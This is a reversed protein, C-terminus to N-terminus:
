KRLAKFTGNPQVSYFAVIKGQEDAEFRFVYGPLSIPKFDHKGAFQAVFDGQGPVSFVLQGERVYVRVNMTSLAYNGVYRELEETSASPAKYKFDVPEPVSPDLLIRAVEIRGTADSIFNFRLGGSTNDVGTKADISKAEFVDYHYHKLYFSDQPVYAFLSDGRLKIVINGYAPNSAEGVYDKLAHSPRTGAVKGMDKDEVSESQEGGGRQPRSWAYYPQGFLRDAILNRVAGPVGSSNQNSLVIIALDDTPFLCVNTSFGDINGGHEVRYHGHYSSLMWGLGYASFHLDPHVVGPRGTGMVMQASVADNIYNAPIVEKGEFKGENLWTMVWASLENASSNISGAPGMANIPHYEMRHIISDDKLAYGLAVDSDKQLAAISTNSRIMRLPAFFQEAILKEWTKGTLQEAVMGQALYMFNNYQWTQRLGATAKMHRVRRLLSDRSNTPFLYWSYDYRPLGTRHSMMDRLTVKASLDEDSFELKPLYQRVPGDLSLKGEEALKGILAATFAKTSSGIPMITNATMPKKDEWNRYGFGRSYIVSDKNVVAVAYGAAYHNQLVKELLPEMALLKQLHTSDLHAGPVKVEHKSPGKDVRKLGMPLSGPGQAFTGSISDANVLQGAYNIQASNVVFRLKPADFFVSDVALGFANQAPSDFTAKLIGAGESVHLVLPLEGQPLKLSGSWSGLISQAQLAVASFLFLLFAVFRIM